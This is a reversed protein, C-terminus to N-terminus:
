KVNFSKVYVTLQNEWGHRETDLEYRGAVVEVTKGKVRKSKGNCVPLYYEYGHYYFRGLEPFVFKIGTQKDVIEGEENPNYEANLTLKNGKEIESVAEAVIANKEDIGNATEPSVIAYENLRRYGNSVLVREAIEAREAYLISNIAWQLYDLDTCEEIKKGAYKGKPFCDTPYETAPGYNDIPSEWSHTGRLNEDVIANPYKEKATELSYSINKVYEHVRVKYTEGFQSRTTEYINWLTYYKNAKGIYEM